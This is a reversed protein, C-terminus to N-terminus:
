LCARRRLSSMSRTNRMIRKDSTRRNSKKSSRSKYEVLNDCLKEVLVEHLWILLSMILLTPIAMSVFTIM